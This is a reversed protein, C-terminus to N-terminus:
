GHYYKRAIPLYESQSYNNIFTQFELQAKDTDGSKVYCLGIMLQADDHKDTQSYAFVKEFELLAKNYHGLGYYCEGIWYQCNDAMHHTNYQTLLQQFTDIANQYQYREFQSRALYYKSMFPSGAAQPRGSYATEPPPSTGSQLQQLRANRNDVIRKLSDATQGKAELVNELQKIRDIAEDFMEQSLGMSEATETPETEIQQPMQAAEDTGEIDEMEQLLAMVEPDSEIDEVDSATSPQEETQGTDADEALDLMELLEQRFQEDESSLDESSSTNAARQACVLFLGIVIILVAIAILLISRLERKM